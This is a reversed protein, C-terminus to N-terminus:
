RTKTNPLKKIRAQTKRDIPTIATTVVPKNLVDAATTEFGLGSLNRTVEGTSLDVTAVGPATDVVIQTGPPVSQFGRAVKSGSYIGMAAGAMYIAIVVYRVAPAQEPSLDIVSMGYAVLLASIVAAAPAFRTPMGVRKAIEVMLMVLGIAPLGLVVLKDIDIDM